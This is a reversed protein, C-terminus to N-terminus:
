RYKIKYDRKEVKIRIQFYDEMETMSHFTQIFFFKNNKYCIVVYKKKVKLPRFVPEYKFIRKKVFFKMLRPYYSYDNIHFTQLGLLYYYWFRLAEEILLARPLRSLYKLVKSTFKIFFENRGFSVIYKDYKEKKCLEIMKPQNPSYIKLTNM